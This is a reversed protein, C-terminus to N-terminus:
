IHEQRGTTAHRTDGEAQRKDRTATPQPKDHKKENKKKKM